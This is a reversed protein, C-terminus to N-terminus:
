DSYEIIEDDSVDEYNYDYGFPYNHSKTSDYEIKSEELVKSIQLALVTFRYDKHYKRTAITNEVVYEDSDLEYGYYTKEYFFYEICSKAQTAISEDDCETLKALYPIASDGLNYLYEIDISEHRGSLYANVNYNAVTRDMGFVTLISFIALSFAIAYKVTNANIKYIRVIFAIIFAVTALMFVSTFLRLSTLGYTKIYMAMKSIATAIFFVSFVSVFTMLVKVPIPLTGKETRKTLWMLIAIVALNIFAIAEAEFFGRRAYDSFTFGEPLLGKFSNVFYALQSFLFSLYVVSVASLVTVTFPSQIPKKWEGKSTTQNDFLNFKNTVTFSMILAAFLITLFLKLISAGITKTIYRMLGQFAADSRILLPIIMCLIPVAVLLAILVEIVSKRKETDKSILSKIPVGINVFPSLASIFVFKIIGNLHDFITKDCISIAFTVYCVLTLLAALLSNASSFGYLTFSLSSILTGFLAFVSLVSFEGNDKLYVATIVALACVSVTLGVALNGFLGFFVILAASILFLFMFIKDKKRFTIEKKPKRVHKPANTGYLMQMQYQPVTQAPSEIESNILNENQNMNM